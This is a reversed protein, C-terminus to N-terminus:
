FGNRVWRIWNLERWDFFVFSSNSLCLNARNRGSFSILFTDLLHFKVYLKLISRMEGLNSRTYPVYLSIQYSFICEYPGLFTSCILWLWRKKPPCKGKRPILSFTQSTNEWSKPDNDWLWTKEHAIAKAEQGLHRIECFYRREMSCFTFESKVYKARDQFFFFSVLFLQTKSLANWAGACGLPFLGQTM